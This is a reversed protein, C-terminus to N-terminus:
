HHHHHGSPEQEPSEVTPMTESPAPRTGSGHDHKMGLPARYQAYRNDGAQHNKHLYIALLQYIRERKAEMTPFLDPSSLVDDINDHLMHLNDFINAAEPFRQSFTPAIEHFMPMFTWHLPPNNLYSHYEALVPQLATQQEAVSRGLQIEGVKVQLWHYAWIQANFKPFRRVFNGSEPFSWLAGAHDLALPTIAQSQALYNTLIERYATEKDTVSDTAFLDYLDRHLQHAWDFTNQVEWVLRQFTPAIFAEDPPLSPKSNIVALVELRAYEIAADDSTHLLTEALHAHGFDIGNFETYLEPLHRYVAWNWPGRLYFRHNRQAFWEGIAATSLSPLLSLLLFARFITRMSFNGGALFRFVGFPRAASRM